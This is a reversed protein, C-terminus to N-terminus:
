AGMKFLRIATGGLIARARDEGVMDLVSKMSQRGYGYSGESHPYDSAWMAREAGILDIQSLGLRDNQFTAYCHRHWYHSPRHELRDILEGNVFSDFLAEADQLAPPVWALGGEAFVIQLKPNRDFVGGFLIQGLPKRFPAMLVMNTAGLGGRRELDVGEGVHFCVPLGAENALAWFRDFHPDGYSLEKGDPGKGPTCPVMFTKFGLDIIQRMAKEAAAPNWWNSFVAVPVSRGGRAKLRELTYENYIRYMHEQVELDPYRAFAILTQPFCIEFEVGEADMAEYRADLDAVSTLNCRILADTGKPGLKLAEVDNKYGIHWYRDFWVRPAKHKLHAPFEEFFVDDGIELHNDASFVRLGPPLQVPAARAPDRDVIHGVNRMIPNELAAITM